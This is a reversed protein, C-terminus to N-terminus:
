KKGKKIYKLKKHLKAGDVYDKVRAKNTTELSKEVTDVVKDKKKNKFLSKLALKIM